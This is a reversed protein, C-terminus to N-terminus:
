IKSQPTKTREVDDKGLRVISDIKNKVGLTEMLGKVYAEDSELANEDKEEVGHIIINTARRKREKEQILQNNREDSIVQKFNPLTTSPLNKMLANKFSENMKEPIDVVTKTVITEKMKEQLNQCINSFKTTMVQDLKDEFKKLRDDIM